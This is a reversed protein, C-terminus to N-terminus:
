LPTPIVAERVPQVYKKGAFFNLLDKNLLKRHPYFL